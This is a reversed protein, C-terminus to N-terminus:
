AKLVSRDGLTGDQNRNRSSWVVTMVRNQSFATARQHVMNQIYIYKKVGMNICGFFRHAGSVYAYRYIIQM